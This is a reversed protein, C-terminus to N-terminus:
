GGAATKVWLILMVLDAGASYMVLTSAAYTCALPSPDFDRDGRLMAGLFLMANIVADMVCHDVFAGYLLAFVLYGVMGTLVKQDSDM